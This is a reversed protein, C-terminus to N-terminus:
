GRLTKPTGRKEDSIKKSSIFSPNSLMGWNMAGHIQTFRKDFNLSVKNAIEVTSKPSCFKISAEPNMLEMENFISFGLPWYRAKIHSSDNVHWPKFKFGSYKQSKVKIKTENPSDRKSTKHHAPPLHPMVHLSSSRPLLLLRPTSSWPHYAVHRKSSPWVISLDPSAIHPRCQPRPSSSRPNRPQAEFGLDVTQWHNPRLVLLVTQWHNIRLVVLIIKGLKAEFDTAVTEGPKAEFDTIEPKEIQAYFRYSRNSSKLRLIV